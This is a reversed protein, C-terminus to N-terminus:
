APTSKEEDQTFKLNKLKRYLWRASRRALPATGNTVFPTKSSLMFTSFNLLSKKSMLPETPYADPFYGQKAIVIGIQYTTEHSPTQWRERPGFFCHICNQNCGEDILIQFIWPSYSCELRNVCRHFEHIGEKVFFGFREPPTGGRVALLGALKDTSKVRELM